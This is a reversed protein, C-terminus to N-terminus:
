ASPLAADANMLWICLAARLGSENKYSSSM